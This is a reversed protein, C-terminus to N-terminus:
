DVEDLVAFLAGGRRAEWVLWGGAGVILRVRGEEDPVPGVMAMASVLGNPFGSISKPLRTM